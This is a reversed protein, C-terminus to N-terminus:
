ATPDPAQPADRQDRHQRQPGRERRGALIQQDVAVAPALGARQAGADGVAALEAAARHLASLDGPEAESEGFLGLRHRRDRGVRREVVDEEAIPRCV